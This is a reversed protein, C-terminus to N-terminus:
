CWRAYNVGFGLGGSVSDRFEALEAEVKRLEESLRPLDVRTYSKSGGGASISASATPNDALLNIAKRLRDRYKCRWIYDRRTM